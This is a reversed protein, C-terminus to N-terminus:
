DQINIQKGDSENWKWVLDMVVPGPDHEGSHGLQGAYHM